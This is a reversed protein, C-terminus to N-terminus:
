ARGFDGDTEDTGVVIGGVGDTWCCARWGVWGGAWEDMLGKM